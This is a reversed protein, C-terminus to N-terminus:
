ELFYVVFLYEVKFLEDPSLHDHEVYNVNKKIKGYNINKKYYHAEPRRM